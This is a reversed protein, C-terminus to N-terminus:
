LGRVSIVVGDDLPLDVSHYGNSERHVYEHYRALQPDDKTMDAIVLAGTPLLPQVLELVALYLDNWGDLFLLEVEQDLDALTDCADGIRMEVLRALGAENLHQHALRAKKPALETTILSGTGIDQLAAALYITSVGVSAGFEVIRRPRRAVAMLYLLEGVEASISLPAGAYLRARERGYIKSGLEAERARVRRKAPEDEREGAARLQALVGVVAPSKLASPM